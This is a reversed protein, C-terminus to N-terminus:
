GTSKVPLTNLWSRTDQVKLITSTIVTELPIAASTKVAAKKLITVERGTRVSLKLVVTTKLYTQGEKQSHKKLLLADMQSGLAASATRPKLELFVGAREEVLNKIANKELLEKRIDQLKELKETLDKLHHTIKIQKKM